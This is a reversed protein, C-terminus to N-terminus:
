ANRLREILKSSSNLVTDVYEVKVGLRECLAREDEPIGGRTLWDAGKVYAFPRLQEIVEKTTATACHVYSVHRIADIVLARSSQPLLVPHKRSTWEDHTINCLVPKGLREAAAFYAIHGEHLPDFSGDVMVVRQSLDPLDNWAVIM